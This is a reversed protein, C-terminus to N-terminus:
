VLLWDFFYKLGFYKKKKLCFKILNKYHTRVCSKGVYKIMDDKYKDIIYKKGLIYKEDNDTITDNNERNWYFLPEDIYLCECIRSLRIGTDWEQFAVVKKDLYGIKELSRKQVLITPFLIFSRRLTEQFINEEPVLLGFLEKKGGKQKYGNSFILVEEETNRIEEVQRELKNPTWEDDSDLFAIWNGVAERIGYNRAVQAGLHEQTLIKVLKNGLSQVVSVSSDDSGDDIVIIEDAPYTQRFVSDLCRIITSQRNFMPIIVSIRIDKKCVKNM